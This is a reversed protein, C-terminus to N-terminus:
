KTSSPAWYRLPLGQRPTAARGLGRAPSHWGTVHPGTVARGHPRAPGHCQHYGSLSSTAHDRCRPAAKKARLRAPFSLSKGKLRTFRPADGVGRWKGPLASMAPVSPRDNPHAILIGRHWLRTIFVTIKSNHGSNSKLM